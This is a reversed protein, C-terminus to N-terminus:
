NHASPSEIQPSPLGPRAYRYATFPMTCALARVALRRYGSGALGGLSLATIWHLIGGHAGQDGAAIPSVSLRRRPCGDPEQHSIEFPQLRRDRFQADLTSKATASMDSRSETRLRQVSSATTCLAASTAVSGRSVERPHQLVFMAPARQDGDSPISRITCTDLKVASNRGLKAVSPASRGAGTPRSPYPCDLACVRPRRVGAGTFM